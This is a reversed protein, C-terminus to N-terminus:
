LLKLLATVLTADGEKQERLLKRMARCYRPATSTPCRMARLKAVYLKDALAQWALALHNFGAPAAVNKNALYRLRQVMMRKHDELIHLHRVDERDVGMRGEEALLFYRDLQEYVRLGIIANRMNHNLRGFYSRGELYDMLSRRLVDPDFSFSPPIPDLGFKKLRLFYTLQDEIRRQQLAVHMGDAAATLERFSVRQPGFRGFVDGPGSSGFGLAHFFNEQTDYGYLLTHHSYFRGAGFTSSYPLFSEDVFVMPYFNQDIAKILNPVLSDRLSLFDEYGVARVELFPNNALMENQGGRWFDLTFEKGPDLYDTNCVLLVFNTYLWDHTEEYAHTIALTYAWSLFGLLPPISVPLVRQQANACVGVPAAPDAFQPPGPHRRDAHLKAAPAAM